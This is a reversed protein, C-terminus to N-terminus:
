ACPARRESATRIVSGAALLAVPRQLWYLGGARPAAAAPAALNESDSLIQALLTQLERAPETGLMSIMAARAKSYAALAEGKRGSRYLALMLQAWSREALPDATVIRHLDAVVQQHRGLALMLDMLETETARRQETLQAVDADIEPTSPVDALPPDRWCDLAAALLTAAGEPDGLGLVQQARSRHRRFRYLDLEGPGPDMRYAGRLTQLRGASDLLRRIRSIHSVLASVPNKPPAEGWLADVLKAHSCPRGAQLLLVSLIARQQPQVIPVPEGSGSVIELPGLVRFDM